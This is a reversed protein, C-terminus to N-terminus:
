IGLAYLSPKVRAIVPVCILTRESLLSYLPWQRGEEEQRLREEEQQQQLEEMRKAEEEARKRAKPSGVKPQPSPTAQPPQATETTLHGIVADESDKPEKPTTTGAPGYGSLAVLMGDSLEGVFSSFDCFPEPEKTEVRQEKESVEVESKEIEGPGDQEGENKGIQPQAESYAIEKEESGESEEKSLIEDIPKLFHLVFMNGDKFVSASVSRAGQVYQSKKIQIQGGDAPFLTSLSGSVHILNDGTDYGIFDYPEEAPEEETPTEPEM